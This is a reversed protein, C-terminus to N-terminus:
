YLSLLYGFFFFFAHSELGAGWREERGSLVKMQLYLVKLVGTLITLFFIYCLFFNGSPKLCTTDRVRIETM